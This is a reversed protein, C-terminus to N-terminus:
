LNNKILKERKQIYTSNDPVEGKVISGAAIICNRGINTGRLIVVNAGIWTNDGINVPATIFKGAKIGGECKTDHDQDYICVNPGVEVNNGIQLLGGHASFRCNDLACFHNGLIMKGGNSVKYKNRYRSTCRGACKIGKIKFRLSNYIVRIVSLLKSM